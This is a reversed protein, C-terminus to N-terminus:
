EVLLEPNAVVSGIKIKRPSKEDPVIVKLAISLIGDKLNAGVVEVYESLRFKKEFKKTSIGKHIYERGRDEHKGRVTLTREVVEVDLEEQAFGAVALEVLYNHESTKLINSPPYNDTASNLARNMEDFMSDFGVFANRPFLSTTKVM